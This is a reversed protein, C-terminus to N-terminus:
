RQLAQLDLWQYQALLEFEGLTIQDGISQAACRAMLAQCCAQQPNGPVRELATQM